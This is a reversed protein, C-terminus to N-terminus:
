HNQNCGRSAAKGVAMKLNSTENLMKQSVSIVKSHVVRGAMQLDVEGGGNDRVWGNNNFKNLGRGDEAGNNLIKFFGYGGNTFTFSM